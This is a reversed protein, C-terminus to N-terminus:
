PAAGATQTGANRELFRSIADGFADNRDGAVMHGARSVSLIEAHPAQRRFTEMAAADVVDSEAGAVLLLPLSDPLSALRNALMASTEATPATGIVRPDWHWRLRGDSGARLNRMLGAPNKSARNPNYASVAAAAEELSAFGAPNAQMFDRVRKVGQAAFGPVIDVLIVGRVREPAESAALLASTGGMSAGVLFARHDLARLAALLDRGHVPRAYNGDPAWDSDGHGRADYTVVHYDQGALRAATSAWAHRTQGGGHLLLVLPGDEPGFRAGSLTIGDDTIFSAPRSASM